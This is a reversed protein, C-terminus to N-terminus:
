IVHEISECRRNHGTYQLSINLMKISPFDCWFVFRVLWFAHKFDITDEKLDYMSRNATVAHRISSLISSAYGGAIDTGLGVSM